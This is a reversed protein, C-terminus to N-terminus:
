THTYGDSEIGIYMGGLIIRYCGNMTDYLIHKRFQRYSGDVRMPHDKSRERNYLRQFALQEAKNATFLPWSEQRLIRNPM